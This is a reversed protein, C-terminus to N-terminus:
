PEALNEAYEVAIRIQGAVISLGDERPSITRGTYRLKAVLGNLGRPGSFVARKIDAIIEHAADNPHDPDCSAHGELVYHQEVKALGLGPRDDQRVDDGEVLIVCPVRNADISLRGRYSRLGMDTHYGDAKKILSLRDSIYKAIDNAKSM